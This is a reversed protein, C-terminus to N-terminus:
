RGCRGVHYGPHPSAGKFQPKPMGPKAAIKVCLSFDLAARLAAIKAEPPYKTVFGTYAASTPL